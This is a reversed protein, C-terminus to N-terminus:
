FQGQTDLNCTSPSATVVQESESGHCTGAPLCVRADKGVSTRTKSSPCKRTISKPGLHRASCHPFVRINRSDRTFWCCRTHRSPCRTDQGSARHQYAPMSVRAGSVWVRELWSGFECWSNRVGGDMYPLPLCFAHIAGFSQGPLCPSPLVAHLSKLDRIPLPLSITYSFSCVQFDPHASGALIHTITTLLLCTIILFSSTAHM